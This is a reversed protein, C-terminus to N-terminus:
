RARRIPTPTSRPRARTRSPRPGRSRGRRHRRRRALRQGLRRRRRRRGGLRGVDRRRRRRRGVSWRRRDVCADAARHPRRGRARRRRRAHRRRRAPPRPRPSAWTRPRRAPASPRWEPGRARRRRCRRRCTRATGASAARRCRRRGLRGDVVLDDRAQGPGVEEVPRGGGRPRQRGDVRLDDDDREAAVVGLAEAQRAALEDIAAVRDALLLVHCASYVRRASSTISRSSSSPRVTIQTPMGLSSLGSTVSRIATCSSAARAATARRARRATRRCTPGTRRGSPRSPRTRRRGGRRRDALVDPGVVAEVEVLGAGLDEGEVDGLDDLGVQAGAAGVIQAAGVPSASPPRGLQARSRRRESAPDAPTAPGDDLPAPQAVQEVTFRSPRRLAPLGLADLPQRPRAHQGLRRVYRRRAMNGARWIPEFPVSAVLTGRASGLWSPSRRRRGPSTSSCRSRWCWTSRTTRSRCRHRRRLLVAARSAALRRRARRRAPRPRRDARRPLARAGAGDGRGRRRRDRPHPTPALGDLMGDLATMFGAMMRQELPNTSAYKDYTNGTPTRRPGATTRTSTMGTPGPARRSPPGCSSIPSCASPSPRSARRLVAAAHERGAPLGQRDLRLGAQRLRAALLALGIPLFVKLPNYSLTM